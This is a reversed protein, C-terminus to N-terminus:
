GTCTTVVEIVVIVKADFNSQTLDRQPEKGIDMSTPNLKNAIKLTKVTQILFPELAQM